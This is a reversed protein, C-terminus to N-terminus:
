FIELNDHVLENGWLLMVKLTHNENLSEAVRRMGEDPIGNNEMDLFVLSQNVALAQAMAKAGLEGIKNRCVRLKRLRCAPDQLYNRLCEAAEVDLQNAGLDLERLTENDFLSQVVTHLGTARLQWHRLSLHALGVNVRLMRNVHWCSEQMVSNFSPKDLCLKKLSHNRVNLVSVLAMVCDHDLRNNSVNLSRLAPNNVLLDVFAMVSAITCENHSM